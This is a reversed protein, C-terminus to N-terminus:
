WMRGVDSAFTPYAYLTDQMQDATLGHTMALAFLNITEAAEPGLLHAGLIRRSQQEILIKHGSARGGAKRTSGSTTTDKYFVDFHDGAQEADSVSKGVRAMQPSTFVATPVLADSSEETAQGLLHNAVLHGDRNASPTLPPCGTDAMDGAAYVNPNSISQRHGNVVVGRSSVRVNGAKADLTATDPVRGAGHVIMDAEFMTSEGAQVCRLYLKDDQGRVIEQPQTELNVTIGQHRLSALLQEALDGDFGQLIRDTTEVMDVRCGAACAVGAFETSIYGAGLFVIHRPLSPLEMYEDSTTVEHSGPFDLPRPISGGALIIKQAKLRVPGHEVKKTTEGASKLPEVILTDPSDFRAVGQYPTVNWDHVQQLRHPTVPDTFERKAAVTAPWHLQLGRFNDAATAASDSHQSHPHGKLKGQTPRPRLLHHLTSTRHALDAIQTFVKKPNCGRLACTGGFPRCDVMAISRFDPHSANALCDAIQNGAPGSGVVVADFTHETFDQSSSDSM